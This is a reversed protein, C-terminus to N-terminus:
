LHVGLLSKLMSEFSDHDTAYTVRIKPYCTCPHQNVQILKEMDGRIGDLQAVLESQDRYHYFIIFESNRLRGVSASTGFHSM